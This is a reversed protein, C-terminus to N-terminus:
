SRGRFIYERTNSSCRSLMKAASQVTARPIHLAKAIKGYSAGKKRMAAIKANRLRKDTGAFRCEKNATSKQEFFKECGLCQRRRKFEPPASCLRCPPTVVWRITEM